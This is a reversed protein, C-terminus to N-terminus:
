AHLGRVAPENLPQREDWRHPARSRRRERRPGRRDRHARNRDAGIVRLEIARQGVALVLQDDVPLRYRDPKMQRHVLHEGALEGVVVRRPTGSQAAAARRRTRAGRPAASARRGSRRCIWAVRCAPAPYSRSRCRAASAATGPEHSCRLVWRVSLRLSGRPWCVVRLRRRQGIEALLGAPATPVSVWRSASLRSGSRMLSRARVFGLDARRGADRRLRRQGSQREPGAIRSRGARQVPSEVSARRTRLM